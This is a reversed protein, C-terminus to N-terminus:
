ASALCRWKSTNANYQFGVTLPLTTSGNSTTPVTVTSNETNVWTLTQAVASFDLVRVMVMQGDVSGATTMTITLTAASSNTVTTIRSTIPVTAANATATLANNPNIVQPASATGTFTAKLTSDITLATSLANQATGTTGAPAVQFIISGGAGTGTGRSGAMTFNAGATNSTGAVVSQVSFTQAVPTTADAAGLQLTATSPAGITVNQTLASNNINIFGNSSNSLRSGSTWGIQASTGAILGTASTLQGSKTVNLKTVGGVQLDMLLSSANSATDTVNLKLATPTGSTNWTQALNLVPTTQSGTLGSPGFTTTTMLPSQVTASTTGTQVGSQTGSTTIATGAAANVASTAIQFTNIGLTSNTIAYYTTGATIGTPLAGTTTFVVPSGTVLGHATWTIVGPTAITITVTATGVTNAFATALVLNGAVGSGTNQSGTLTFDAGATSSTGAVVSQVSLTQAVPAAADVAGFRTNAAAKRTLYTDGNLAVSTPTIDGLTLTIAPTTTATAVTGSVGNATTVSVSTVTGSGASAAAWTATTGNSTLVYGNTGIALRTSSNTGNGIILDGTSTVPSLANFGASATTQGTGGNAIALTGALTITGSTTVPGGSTTLGTTGGSVNISTVTGSGGSVTAWTGDGRLYTTSSPTGTASIGGVPLGTASTLTLSSPTGGAGNFLVPAGASGVNAGLATFVGTGYAFQGLQTSSNVYLGYGNTAGTIPSGIAITASGPAVAGLVGANNYLLYGNTAGTIPTLGVTLGSSAWTGDGRLFNAASPTGTASIGGVPLGTANTLTLSSPTGGAGNYLVPGGTSTTATQLATFVGSGYPFQGLQSSGNVYLGNGPTSGGIANGISISPVAFTSATYAAIDATTLRVTVGNQVAPLQETGNLSTAAPLNTITINAM